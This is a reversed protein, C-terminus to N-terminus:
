YKVQYFIAHVKILLLRNKKLRKPKFVITLAISLDNIFNISTKTNITM